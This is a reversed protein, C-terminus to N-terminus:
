LHVNLQHQTKFINRTKKTKKKKKKKKKNKKLIKISKNLSLVTYTTLGCVLYQVM